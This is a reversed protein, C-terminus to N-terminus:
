DDTADVLLVTTCNVVHFAYTDTNVKTVKNDTADEPLNIAANSRNNFINPFISDIKSIKFNMYVKSKKKFRM